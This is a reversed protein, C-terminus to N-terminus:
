DLRLKMGAHSLKFGLDLYFRHADTRENNTTLQLFLCKEERAREIAWLMLKRGIGKGRFSGDVRVGEVQARKSGQFSISPIFTLQLTGIIKGEHEVVVLENNKDGDIEEFANYYSEPLPEEYKERQSGLFDDALMRVIETVDDRRARRISIEDKTSTM